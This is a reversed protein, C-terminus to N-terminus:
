NPLWRERRLWRWLWLVKRPYSWGVILLAKAPLPTAIGIARALLTAVESHKLVEQIATRAEDDLGRSLRTVEVALQDLRSPEYAGHLHTLGPPESTGYANEICRDFNVTLHKGGTALHAAFVEHLRNAPAAEIVVFPALAVEAGLAGILPQLIGELRPMTKRRDAQDYVEGATLRAV